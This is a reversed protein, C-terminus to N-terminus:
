DCAAFGPSIPPARSPLSEVCGMETFDKTLSSIKGFKRYAFSKSNEHVAPELAAPKM